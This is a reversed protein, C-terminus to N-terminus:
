VQFKAKLIFHTTKQLADVPGYLKERMSVPAPWIEERLARYIGCDQLIHEATQDDEGCPCLPSPALRFRKNLHYNLRNHGTRLRFIIM